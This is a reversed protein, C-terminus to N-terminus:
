SSFIASELSTIYTKERSTTEREMDRMSARKYRAFQEMWKRELAMFQRDYEEFARMYREAREKREEATEHATLERVKKCNKHTLEPEIKSMLLDYVAEGSLIEPIKVSNRNEGKTDSKRKSQGSPM